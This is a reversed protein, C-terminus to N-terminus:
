INKHLQKSDSRDSPGPLIAPEMVSLALHTRNNQYYDVEKIQVARGSAVFERFKKVVDDDADFLLKLAAALDHRAVDSLDATVPHSSETVLAGLKFQGSIKLFEESRQQSSMSM